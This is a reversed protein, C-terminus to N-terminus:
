NPPLGLGFLQRDLLQRHVVRSRKVAETNREHDLLEQFNNGAVDELRPDIVIEIHKGDWNHRPEFRLSQQDDAVTFQGEIVEGTEDVVSILRAM